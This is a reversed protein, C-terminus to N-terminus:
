TESLKVWLINIDPSSGSRKLEGVLHQDIGTANSVLDAFWDKNKRYTRKWQALFLDRAEDEAATWRFVSGTVTNEAGNELLYVEFGIEWESVDM